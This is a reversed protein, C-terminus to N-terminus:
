VPMEADFRKYFASISHRKPLDLAAAVVRERLPADDLLTQINWRLLASDGIPSLLCNEGHRWTDFYPPLDTLLCPVRLSTAELPAIPQSEDGSPLAFVDASLIYELATKREVEGILRFISPHEKIKNVHPAGISDIGETAGIFLCEVDQRNLKIVADILDQPRKRGYVGGVFVIRKKGPAKGQPVLNEPLPPLGNRVCAIRDNKVGTLFSRFVAESQWASQFIIRKPLQFLYRWQAPTWKSNWVATEGEHVWLATPVHPALAELFNSSVITNVVAFDYDKPNATSFVNVGVAALDLPVERDAELLVDVTWSLDRIWHKLISLLMVAAGNGSYSHTAVLVKM